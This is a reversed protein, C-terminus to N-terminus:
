HRAARIIGISTGLDVMNPTFPTDHEYLAILAKHCYSALPHFHLTLSM